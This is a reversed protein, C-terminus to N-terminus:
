PTKPGLDHYGGSTLNSNTTGAPQDPNVPSEDPYEQYTKVGHLEMFKEIDALLIDGDLVANILSAWIFAPIVPCALSLGYSALPVLVALFRDRVTM